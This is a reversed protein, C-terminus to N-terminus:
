LQEQVMNINKTRTTLNRLQELNGIRIEQSSKGHMEKNM